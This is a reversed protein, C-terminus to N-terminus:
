AALLQAEYRRVVPRVLEWGADANVKFDPFLMLIEGM